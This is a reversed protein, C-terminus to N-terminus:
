RLSSEHRRGANDLPEVRLLTESEDRGVHAAIVEEDVLRCDLAIAEAREALALLHRVVRDALIALQLGHVDRTQATTGNAALSAAAAAAAARSLRALPRLADVRGLALLNACDLPEVRVLTESENRRGRATVIQEDVLRGDVRGAEAREHLALLDLELDDVLSALEFGNIDGSRIAVENLARRPRAGATTVIAAVLGAAAFTGAKPARLTAARSERRCSPVRGGGLLFLLPPPLTRSGITSAGHRERPLLSLAFATPARAMDTRPSQRAHSQRM